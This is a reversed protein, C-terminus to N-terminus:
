FILTRRLWDVLSRNIEGDASLLNTGHAAVGSIRQERTAAGALLEKVTRLAYPDETSASLWLPRDSLKRMVSADIRIGRYDLSPSLLGLARVSSDDAAAIAALNAGLSAGVIAVGPRVTPRSGLWRVAARVDDTMAGLTQSSGSSQGHGRLDVALVTLGADQLRDALSSWDDKSRGFMHVLVVAPAPRNSSEYLLAALQTGDTSALTVPRGAAGAGATSWLVAAAILLPLVARTM